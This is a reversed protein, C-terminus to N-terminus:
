FVLLLCFVNFRSSVVGCGEWRKGKVLEGVRGKVVEVFVDENIEIKFIFM